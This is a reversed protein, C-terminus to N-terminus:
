PLAGTAPASATPASFTRPSPSPSVSDSASPSAGPATLAAPANAQPLARASAGPSATPSQSPSATPSPSTSTVSAPPVPAATTPAPTPVGLVSGSGPDLFVPRPNPVMGLAAAQSALAGPASLGALRLQLEQQQDTLQSQRKQASQIEFAGRDLATNLLLLLVLGIALLCLVLIAFPVVSRRGAFGEIVAVPGAKGPGRVRRRIPDSPGGPPGASM